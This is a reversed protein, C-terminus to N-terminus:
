KFVKMFQKYKVQKQSVVESNFIDTYTEFIWNCIDQPDDFKEISKELDIQLLMDIKSITNEYELAITPPNYKCAL